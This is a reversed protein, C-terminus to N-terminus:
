KESQITKKLRTIDYDMATLRKLIDQYTNESMTPTRSLIWAYNRTPNGVVAYQYDKDLDIVWYDGEFPWFFVVKLKANTEKDVVRAYAEAKKYNGDLTKERCENLVNVEGNDKLTYTATTGTCDKQEKIPIAAIEYWKGMYKKVDVKDVANLPKLNTNANQNCSFSFISLSSIVLINLLKKLIFEM